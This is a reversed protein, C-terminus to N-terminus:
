VELRRDVGDLKIRKFGALRSALSTDIKDIEALSRDCTVITPKDDEIRGNIVALLWTLGFDTKSAALLDDIVLAWRGHWYDYLHAESHEAYRGMCRRVDLMLRPTSLWEADWKVALAGALHSKGVGNDGTIYLSEPKSLFGWGASEPFDAVHASWYIKPIKRNKLTSESTIM